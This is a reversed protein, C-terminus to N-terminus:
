PTGPEEPTGSHVLEDVFAALRTVVEPEVPSSQRGLADKISEYTAAKMGCQRCVELHAVVASGTVDDAEGDLYSQIARAAQRCSLVGRMRSWPWLIM